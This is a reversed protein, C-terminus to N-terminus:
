TPLLTLSLKQLLCHWLSAPLALSKGDDACEGYFRVCLASPRPRRTRGPGQPGPWIRSAALMRSFALSIIIQLLLQSPAEEIRRAWQITRHHTRCLAGKQLGDGYEMVQGGEETVSGQREVQVVQYDPSFKSPHSKFFSRRVWFLEALPCGLRRLNGTVSHEKPSPTGGM